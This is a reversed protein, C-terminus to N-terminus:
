AAAGRCTSQHPGKVKGAGGAITSQAVVVAGPGKGLNEVLVKTGLPLTRHAATLADGDMIEGSATATTFDYWSAPGTEAPRTEDVTMEQPKARTEVRATAAAPTAAHVAERAAKSARNVSQSPQQV